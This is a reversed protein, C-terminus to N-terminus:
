SSDQTATPIICLCEGTCNFTFMGGDVDYAVFQDDVLVLCECTNGQMVEMVHDMGVWAPDLMLFDVQGILVFPGMQPSSWAISFDWDLDGVTVESTWVPTIIGGFEYGNQPMGEVRFEAATIGYPFDGEGIVAGVFVSTPAGVAIDAYCIEGGTESDFMGIWSEAGAFSAIALMMLAVMLKKM